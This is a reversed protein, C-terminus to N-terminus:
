QYFREEYEFDISVGTVGVEYYYITNSGPVLAFWDRRPGDAFSISQFQNSNDNLYIITKADTDIEFDEDEQIGVSIDFHEGTTNNLLRCQLIYSNQEAGIATDPTNNADWTILVDSFEAKATFFWETQTLLGLRTAGTLGTVNQSWSQWTSNITPAPINYEVGGSDSYIYCRLDFDWDIIDDTWKQGNTFNASIYGCPNDLWMNSYDFDTSKTGVVEAPDATTDQSGTYITNYSDTLWRGAREHIFPWGPTDMDNFDNYDWQINTSSGAWDFMPADTTSAPGAGASANGYYIWIDHQLWQVTTNQGHSAATTGKAGRTLGYFTKASNSKSTYTIVESSIKLIGSNPMGSIDNSNVTLTTDGAGMTVGTPIKMIIDAAWDLNTWVDTHSTNPDKIWRDVEVGDVWVRLDDCNALAFNTSAIRTDLVNETINVPYKTAAGDALWWVQIFRKYPWSSTKPNTPTITLKPYCDMEGNNTLVTTQGTATINWTSPTTATNERWMVDGHVQISVIFRLGASYPVEELGQCIGMVYRQNGGGSDQAILKKPTEDDPDFWQALQKQKNAVGTGRIYVEFLVIKGPREIGAVLPWAGQRMGLQPNIGPLGYNSADLISLYNTGDNINNGDWSVLIM